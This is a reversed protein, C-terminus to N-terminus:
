ERISVPASASSPRGARRIRGVIRSTVPSRTCSRSAAKRSAASSAETSVLSPSSATASVSSPTSHLGQDAEQHDVPVAQLLGADLDLAVGRDDAGICGPLGRQEIGNLRHQDAAVLAPPVRIGASALLAGSAESVIAETDDAIRVVRIQGLLKAGALLCDGVQDQDEAVGLVVARDADPERHVGPQLLALFLDVPAEDRGPQVEGECVEHVLGRIARYRHGPLPQALGHALPDALGKPNVGLDALILALETMLEVVAFAREIPLTEEPGEAVGDGEGRDAVNGVEHASVDQLFSGNVNMRELLCQLVVALDLGTGLIGALALVCEALDVLKVLAGLLGLAQGLGPAPHLLLGGEIGQLRLHLRQALRDPLTLTLDGPQVPLGSVQVPTPM